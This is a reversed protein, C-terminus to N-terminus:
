SNEADSNEKETTFICRGRTKPKGKTTTMKVYFVKNQIKFSITRKDLLEKWIKM